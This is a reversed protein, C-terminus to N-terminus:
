TLTWVGDAVVVCRQVDCALWGARAGRLRWATPARVGAAQVRRCVYGHCACICSFRRCAAVDRRGNECPRARDAARDTVLVVCPPGVVDSAPCSRYGLAHGYAETAQAPLAGAGARPPPPSAAPPTNRVTLRGRVLNRCASASVPRPKPPAPRPSSAPAGIERLHTYPVGELWGSVDLCCGAPDARPPWHMANPARRFLRDFEHDPVQASALGRLAIPPKAGDVRYASRVCRPRCRSAPRASQRPAAHNYKPKKPFAPPPGGAPRAPRASEHQEDGRSHTSTNQRAILDCSPHQRSRALAHENAPPRTPRPPSM